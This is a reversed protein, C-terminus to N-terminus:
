PPLKVMTESLKDGFIIPSLEEVIFSAPEIHPKFVEQVEM